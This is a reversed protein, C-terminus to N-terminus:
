QESVVDDDRQAAALARKRAADLKADMNLFINVQTQAGSELMKGMQALTRLAPLPDALKVKRVVTPPAGDSEFQLETEFQRLAYATAEDLEQPKKWSGDENFLKRPDARALMGLRGEIELNSLRFAEWRKEFQDRLFAAVAPHRLMRGAKVQATKKSYGAQVAAKEASGCELYYACFDLQKFTLGFPRAAKSLGRPTLHEPPIPAKDDPGPPVPLDAM